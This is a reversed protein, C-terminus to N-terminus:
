SDHHSDLLKLVVRPSPMERFTFGHKQYYPSEELRATIGDDKLLKKAVGVLLPADDRIDLQDLRRLLHGGHWPHFLEMDISAGLEHTFTFDPFGYCDGELLVFDEAPGINWALNDKAFLEQFMTIEAPIHAIFQTSIPRIGCSSDLKLKKAKRNRLHVEAQLSWEDLHLIAPFFNALNMGYKKTQMFLSLPGDVTIQFIGRKRKRKRIEALLQHFRLRRFFQRWAKTDTQKTEIALASSHLLLWQVLACNYRHLLREASLPRFRTIPQNEPLDIFLRKALTEHSHDTFQELHAHYEALSAFKCQTLTHSTKVFLDHRWAILDKDADTEFDIRDFLLKEFGRALIGPIEAADVVLKSEKELTSRTKGEAHRFIDILQEAIQLLSSQSPDIFEPQLATGKLKFKVLDKTLM